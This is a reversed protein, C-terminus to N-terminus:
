EDTKEHAHLANWAKVLESVSRPWDNSSITSVHSDGKDNVIIVNAEHGDNSVVVSKVKVM